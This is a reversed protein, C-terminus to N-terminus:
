RRRRGGLAAVGGLFLCSAGPAPITAIWGRTEYTNWNIMQGGITTGDSSIASTSLIHWEDLGINPDYNLITDMDLGLSVLYDRVYSLGQGPIYIAARQFSFFQNGDYGVAIGSDSVDLFNLETTGFFSLEIGPVYQLTDTTVDYIIGANAYNQEPDPNTQYGVMYRGNTSVANFEGVSGDDPTFTHAGNADWYTARRQGWTESELWGVILSGDFNAGSARSSALPPRGLGTWATGPISYSVAEAHGGGTIWGLGVMTNGDGSIDFAVGAETGDIGDTSEYPDAETWLGTSEDWYAANWIGDNNADVSSSIRSGDSSIGATFTHQWDGPSITSTGVGREWRFVAGAGVGTAFRGDASISMISQGAGPLGPIEPLIEFSASGLASGAVSLLLIAASTKGACRLGHMM